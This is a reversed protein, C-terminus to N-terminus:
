FFGVARNWRLNQDTQIKPELARDWHTGGKGALDRGASWQPGNVSEMETQIRQHGKKEAWKECQKVMTERQKVM